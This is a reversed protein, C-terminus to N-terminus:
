DCILDDLLAMGRDMIPGAEVLDTTLYFVAPRHGDPAVAEMKVPPTAGRTQKRGTLARRM